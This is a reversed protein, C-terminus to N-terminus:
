IVGEIPIGQESASPKGHFYFKQATQGSDSHGLSKAIAYADQNLELRMYQAKSHRLRHATINDYGLILKAQRKIEKSVCSRNYKNGKTTEFLYTKGKFVKRIKRYLDAPMYKTDDKRSKSCYMTIEATGKVIKCRSIETNILESVRAGTWFLALVFCGTRDTAGEEFKKVEAHTLYDSETQETKPKKAKIRHFFYELEEVKEKHEKWTLTNDELEKEVSKMVFAKIASKSVNHTSASKIGGLWSEISDQGQQQRTEQIYNMYNKLRSDYLARTSISIDRDTKYLDKEKKKEEIKILKGM